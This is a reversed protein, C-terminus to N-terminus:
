VNVIKRSFGFYSSNAVCLVRVTLGADAAVIGALEDVSYNGRNLTDNLRTFVEPPSGIRDASRVLATPTSYM